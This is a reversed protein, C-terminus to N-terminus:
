RLSPGPVYAKLLGSCSPLWPLPVNETSAAPSTTFYTYAGFTSGCYAVEPVTVFSRV